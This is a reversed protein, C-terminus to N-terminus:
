YRSWRSGGASRGVVIVIIAVVVIWIILPVSGLWQSLEDLGGRGPGTKDKPVMEPGIAAILQQKGAAKGDITSMKEGKLESSVLGFNLVGKRQVGPWHEAGPPASPPASPAAAFEGNDDIQWYSQKARDWTGIQKGNLIAGFQEPAGDIKRWEVRETTEAMVHEGTSDDPRRWAGPTAALLGYLWGGWRRAFQERGMWVIQDNGPYNNDLIAVWDNAKDYACVNVCHAIAQRYHPDHGNYDVCPLRQSRILLELIDFDKDTDQFYHAGDGYRAILQDVKDPYGGGPVRDRVMKEPLGTLAPVAQLRAAYSLARFVCCGLGGSAINKPWSGDYGYLVSQTKGDPSSLGGM